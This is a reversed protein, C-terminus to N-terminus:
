CKRLNETEEETLRRYSGKPLEQDLTLTGMRLRKLYVVENGVAYLMRKVQHFKGEIITLTIRKEDLIHVVAPKTMAKEGIDVGQELQSKQINDFSKALHCEYEKEVHKAPSLLAHALAGDNTILLLGEADKDLRGVPFLDDRGEQSFLDIVTQEHKDETASVLGSPKHLMYYVFEEYVCQQGKYHICDTHEDIHQEPKLVKVDNVTVLGAKIDKKVQSRTGLRCDCLFKDLRM